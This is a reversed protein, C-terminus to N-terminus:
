QVKILEWKDGDSTEMKLIGQTKNYYCGYSTKSIPNYENKFYHVNYYTNNQIVLSNYNFPDNEINSPRTIFTTNNFDIELYDILNTADYYLFFLVIPKPFSVTSFTIHKEQVSYIQYCGDQTTLAGYDTVWGRGTFTFTDNTSTRLFTLQTNDDYHVKALDDIAINKTTINHVCPNDKQCSSLNAYVFFEIAFFLNTYIKTKM